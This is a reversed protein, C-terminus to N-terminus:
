QWGGAEHFLSRGETKELLFLRLPFVASSTKPMSPARGRPYHPRDPECCGSWDLQKIVRLILANLLQLDAKGEGCQGVCPLSVDPLNDRRDTTAKIDMLRRQRRTQEAQAVIALDGRCHTLTACREAVQERQTIPM